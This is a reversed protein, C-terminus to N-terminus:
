LHILVHLTLFLMESQRSAHLFATQAAKNPFPTDDLECYGLLGSALIVGASDSVLGPGQRVAAVVLPGEVGDSVCHHIFGFNLEEDLYHLEKRGKSNRPRCLM